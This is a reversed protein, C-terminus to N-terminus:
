QNNRDYLGMSLGMAGIGSCGYWSGDSGEGTRSFWRSMESELASWDLKSRSVKGDTGSWLLYAVSGERRQIM